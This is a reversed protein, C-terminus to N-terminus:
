VVTVAPVLRAEPWLEGLVPNIRETAIREDVAALWPGTPPAGYILLGSLSGNAPFETTLSLPRGDLAALRRRKRAHWDDPELPEFGLDTLRKRTRDRHVGACSIALDAGAGDALVEAGILGPLGWLEVAREGLFVRAASCDAFARRLSASMRSGPKLLVEYSTVPLSPLGLLATRALNYGAVGKATRCGLLLPEAFGPTPTWLGTVQGALRPGGPRFRDFVRASALDYLTAGPDFLPCGLFCYGAEGAAAELGGLTVSAGVTARLDAVHVELTDDLGSLGVREYEDEGVAALALGRSRGQFLLSAPTSLLERLEAATRPVEM